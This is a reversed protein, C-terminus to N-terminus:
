STASPDLDQLRRVQEFLEEQRAWMRAKAEPTEDEYGLLHLVGHITLILLEDEVPHGQEAAQELAREYSVVVDGLYGEAEPATVFADDAETYFALVDTPRDRGKFRRNLETIEADDVLLM